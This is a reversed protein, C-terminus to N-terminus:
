PNATLNFSDGLLRIDQIPATSPSFGTLGRQDDGVPIRFATILRTTNHEV